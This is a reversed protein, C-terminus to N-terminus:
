LGLPLQLIAYIAKVVAVAKVVLRAWVSMIARVPSARSSSSDAAEAENIM